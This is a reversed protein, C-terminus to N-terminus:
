DCGIAEVFTQLDPALEYVNHYPDEAEDLGEEDHAWILMQGLDDGEVLLLLENGYVDEGITIAESPLRSGYDRNVQVVEPVQGEASLANYFRSVFIPEQDPLNAEENGETIWVNNNLRLFEKYSEPLTRGFWKELAALDADSPISRENRSPLAKM